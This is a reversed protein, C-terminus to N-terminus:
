VKTDSGSGYRAVIEQLEERRAIAWVLPQEAYSFWRALADPTRQQQRVSLLFINEVDDLWYIAEQLSLMLDPDTIHRGLESLHTREADVRSQLQRVHEDPSPMRFM